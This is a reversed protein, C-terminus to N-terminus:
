FSTAFAALLLFGAVAGLIAGFIGLFVFMFQESPKAREFTNSNSLMPILLAIFLCIGSAVLLALGGDVLSVDM